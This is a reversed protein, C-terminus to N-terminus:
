FLKIILIDAINLLSGSIKKLICGCPTSRLFFQSPLCDVM